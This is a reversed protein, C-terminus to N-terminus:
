ANPRSRRSAAMRPSGAAAAARRGPAPGPRGHGARRHGRPRRARSAPAAARRGQRGPSERLLQAVQHHAGVLAAHARGLELPEAAPLPAVVPARRRPEHPLVGPHGGQAVRRGVVRGLQDPGDDPQPQPLRLQEVRLPGRPLDDEDVLQLVGVRGLDLQQLQQGAAPAVQHRDAVRVLGDVAEAAGVDVADTVERLAEPRRGALGRRHQRKVVQRRDPGPSSVADRRTAAPSPPRPSCRRSTRPRRAPRPRRHRDRDEPRLRLLRGVDRRRQALRVQDVAHRPGPHRHQHARGGARHRDQTACEDSGPHRHQHGAVLHRERLLGRHPRQQRQQGARNVGSPEVLVPGDLQDRRREAAGVHHRQAPQPLRQAARLEVGTTAPRGPRQQDLRQGVRDLEDGEVGLGHARGLPDGVQERDGALGRGLRLRRRLGHEPCTQDRVPSASRQSRALRSPPAAPSAASRSRSATTARKSAAARKQSRSGAAPGSTNRSWRSPWCIGPSSRAGLAGTVSATCTRVAWALLPRSHSTTHTGATWSPM